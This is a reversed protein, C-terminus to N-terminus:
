HVNRNFQLVEAKAQGLVQIKDLLNAHIVHFSHISVPCIQALDLINPDTSGTVIGRLGDTDLTNYLINCHVDYAISFALDVPHTESKYNEWYANVVTFYEYVPGLNQMGLSDPAKNRSQEMCNNVLAYLMKFYPYHCLSPLATEFLYKNIFSIPNPALALELLLNESQNFIFGYNDPLEIDLEAVTLVNLINLKM